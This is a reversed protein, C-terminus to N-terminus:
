ASNVLSVATAITTGVMTLLGLYAFSGRQRKSPDGTQYGRAYVIRGLLYVAGAASNIEPYKLGGVFLVMLFSAYGELYNQHARQYCNFLKKKSDSEAEAKDAYLYPYHVNAVKRQRGVQIGLYVNLVASLIGTGIVYGYTSPIEFAVM